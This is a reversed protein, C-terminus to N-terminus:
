ENIEENDALLGFLVTPVSIPLVTFYRQALTFNAMNNVSKPRTPFFAYENNVVILVALSLLGNQLGYQFKYFDRYITSSNGFQIEGFVLNKRFDGILKPSDTLKPQIEWAGKKFENEFHKNYATQHFVSKNEVSFAFEESWQTSEIIKKIEGIEKKMTELLYDSCHFHREKFRM